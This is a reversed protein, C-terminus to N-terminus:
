QIAQHVRPHPPRQEEDKDQVNADGGQDIGDDQPPENAQDEVEDVQAEDENRTPPSAQMSSSPQDQTNPPEESEKPCV